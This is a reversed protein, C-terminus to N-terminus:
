FLILCHANLHFVRQETTKGPSSSGFLVFGSFAVIAVLLTFDDFGEEAVISFDFDSLAGFFCDFVSFFIALAGGLFGPFFNVFSSFLFTGFFSTILM